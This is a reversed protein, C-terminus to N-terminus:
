EPRKKAIWRSGYISGAEEDAFFALVIDRPPKYGIRAWLRVIALIMADMDKMDIAGRGWICGDKILGSFPDVEWDAANAPVVDLHGHLVLGPRTSDSGKLRTVVNVRNPATEIVECDIGVDKLEAVVFEAIAREDGKGDGFNVSPIRILEQCLRIVDAELESVQEPTLTINM